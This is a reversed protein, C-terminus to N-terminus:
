SRFLIFLNCDNRYLDLRYNSDYLIKCCGPVSTAYLFLQWRLEARGGHRVHRRPFDPALNRTAVHLVSNGRKSIREAWAFGRARRANGIEM